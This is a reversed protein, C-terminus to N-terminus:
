LTQILCKCYKGNSITSSTFLRYGICENSRSSYADLMLFSICYSLSVFINRVPEAAPDERQVPIRIVLFFFAFSFNPVEYSKNKGKEEAQRPEPLPKKKSPANTKSKRIFSVIVALITLLLLVAGIIIAIWAWKPLYRSRGAVISCHRFKSATLEDSGLCL